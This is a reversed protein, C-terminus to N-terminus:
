RHPQNRLRSSITPDKELIRQYCVMKESPAPTFKEPVLALFILPEISKEPTLRIETNRFNLDKEFM